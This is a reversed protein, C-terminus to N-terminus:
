ATRGTYVMVLYMVAEAPGRNEYVHAVDADFLIADGTELHHVEGAVSLDIAGTTVVLNETTGPPHPDASESGNPALRLEYFEVSRPKDFPFLARSSFVGTHSTLVPTRSKPLTVSRRASGNTILASFTVGLACSIKWLINITPTSKGLEIQGLMARSVGSANALRQLSLGHGARMRRLNAAVIPTLDTSIDGSEPDADPM